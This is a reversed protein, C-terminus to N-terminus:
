NMSGDEEDDSASIVPEIIKDKTANKKAEEIANRVYEEAQRQRERKRRQIELDREESYGRVFQRSMKVAITEPNGDGDDEDTIILKRYDSKDDGMQKEIYHIIKDRTLLNRGMVDDWAKNFMMGICLVWSILYFWLMLAVINAFAGYLINYNAIYSIYIAYFFTILMIGLMALVTGPIICKLPVKVRPLVYYNMMLMLFFLGAAIPLRMAVLLRAVHNNSVIKLFLEEGYVYISLTFAIAMITMIATPIAKLRESWFSFRYTGETLSYTTLRALSFELGSAAWLALVTLVINTLKVSSATFLGMVFSSVETAVHSDLWDRIVDLSVDFLGLFQSLVVMTPMSSMFFFYAIQAAFGTYYPDDFQRWIHFGMRIFKDKNLKERGSRNHRSMKHFRAKEKLEKLKNM